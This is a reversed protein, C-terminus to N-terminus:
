PEFLPFRLYYCLAPLLIVHPSGFVFFRECMWECIFGRPSRLFTPIAIMIIRCCSCVDGCKSHEFPCYKQCAAEILRFFQAQLVGQGYNGAWEWHFRLQQGVVQGNTIAGFGLGFTYRGTVRDDRREFTAEIPRPEPDLFVIAEGRALAHAAFATGILGAGTILTTM